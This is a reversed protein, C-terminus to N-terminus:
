SWKTQEQRKQAGKSKTAVARCRKKKDIDNKKRTVDEAEGRMNMEKSGDVHQPMQTGIMEVNEDKFL